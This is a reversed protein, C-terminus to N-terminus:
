ECHFNIVSFSLVCNNFVTWLEELIRVSTHCIRPNCCSRTIDEAELSWSRIWGSIIVRLVCTCTRDTRTEPRSQVRSWVIRHFRKKNCQQALRWQKMTIPPLSHKWQQTVVSGYCSASNVTAAVNVNNSRVHLVVLSVWYTVIHVINL